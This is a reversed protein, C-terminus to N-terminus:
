LHRYVWAPIHFKRHNLVVGLINARADELREKASQAVEWRTKEARVVLVVGDTRPGLAIADNFVSIAPADFLVWDVEAKMDCVIPGTMVAAFLPFPNQPLSGATVLSLNPFHTPKIVEKLREQGSLVEAMGHNKEVAFFEHLVPNRLNADVLLLREGASALVMGFSAVVNSNGEAATAGAFLLARRKMEPTLSIINQKLYNYEEMARISISGHGDVRAKISEGQRQTTMPHSTKTDFLRMEEPRLLMDREAKRIADLTRSMIGGDIAAFTGDM